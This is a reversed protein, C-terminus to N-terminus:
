VGGILKVKKKKLRWTIGHRLAREFADLLSHLKGAAERRPLIGEGFHVEGIVRVVVIIIGRRL